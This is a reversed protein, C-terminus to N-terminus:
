FSDHKGGEGSAVKLCSIKLTGDEELRIGVRDGKKLRYTQIWARPLNVFASGHM